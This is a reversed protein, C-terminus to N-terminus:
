SPPLCLFAGGGGYLCFLGWCLFFYCFREEGHHVVYCFFGVHFFLLLFVVWIVFCIKEENKLSPRVGLRAGEREVFNYHSFRLLFAGVYLFPLLFAGWITSKKLPPLQRRNGGGGQSRLVIILFVYCFLGWMSFSAFIVGYLTFLIKKIKLPPPSRVGVRAGGGGVPAWPQIGGQLIQLSM